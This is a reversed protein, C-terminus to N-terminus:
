RQQFPIECYPDLEIIESIPLNGHPAYAWSPLVMSYTGMGGAVVLMIQDVHQLARFGSEPEESEIALDGYISKGYDSSMVAFEMMQARASERTYGAKFLITAHEPCIVVVLGGNGGRYINNSGPNAIVGGIIKLLRLADSDIDETPEMILSHPAEVAIVTAVSQDAKFGKTVHYPEFPSEHEAEAFCASFKGPTSFIAMDSSGPKRGGINIIALSLARGIAASARNGPGLIGAGSAIPGCLDRAPGNVIILPALCHTTQNVETLDFEPRCVAKVAAVVVPFYGPMCGAMVASAAVLEVRAAGQKPGMEGLVLDPDLDTSSMMAEIRTQTPIVVPLGDTCGQAHLLELAAEEDAAELQRPM